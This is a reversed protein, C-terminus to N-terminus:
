FFRKVWQWLPKWDWKNAIDWAQVIAAITLFLTFIKIWRQQVINDRHRRNDEEWQSLTVLAKPDVRYAHGDRTLDGSAALSSLLLDCYNQLEAKNPHLFARMSYIKSMLAVPSVKTDAKNIRMEVLIRLTEMREMRDLTRKNFSYQTARDRLVIEQDHFLYYARIFSWPAERKFESERYFHTFEVALPKLQEWTMKPFEAPKTLGLQQVLAGDPAWGRFLYRTDTAKDHFYAIYCDVKAERGGSRPVIDPAPKRAVIKLAHSLLSM